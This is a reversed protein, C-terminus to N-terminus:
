LSIFQLDIQSMTQFQDSGIEINSEDFFIFNLLTIIGPNLIQLEYNNIRVDETFSPHILLDYTFNDSFFPHITSNYKLNIVTLDNSITCIGYFNRKGLGQSQHTISNALNHHPNYIDYHLDASVKIFKNDFLRKVDSNYPIM